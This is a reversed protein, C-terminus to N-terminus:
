FPIETTDADVDIDPIDEKYEQAPRQQRQQTNQQKYGDNRQQASSNGDDKSNLMEMSDVDISHRSRNQGNQDQWQEFKLRGEILVKSGKRLYQNAVEANRVWFTLFM